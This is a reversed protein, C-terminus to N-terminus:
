QEMSDAQGSNPELLLKLNRKGNQLASKVSKENIGLETAIQKYSKRKEYFLKICIRQQKSLQKMADSISYEDEVDDDTSILRTLGENEMFKESKKENIKFNELINGRSREKRLLGICENYTLKYVWARFSIVEEGPPNTLLGEFIQMTVDESKFHDELYKLCVGFVLHRYRQYLESFAAKDDTYKYSKILDEDSMSARSLTKTKEFLM